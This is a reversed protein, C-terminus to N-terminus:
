GNVDGSCLTRLEGDQEVYIHPICIGERAMEALIDDKRWWTAILLVDVPTEKLIDRYQIEQGTGPVYSGIKDRDSDVVLPFRQGDLGYLNIFAASKGTGGWIAIHKGSCAIETLKSRTHQVTAPIQTFFAHTAKARKKTNGPSQLKVLAYVVERNYGHSLTQVEGIRQMLTLFSLTTFHSVHEYYFDALRSQAVSPEICPVEAFLHCPKDLHATCWAISELLPTIELFHELVHRVIIVDPQITPIDQMPDFLRAEFNIGRGSEASTNPDFGLFIRDPMMESLGRLFHGEGCGIEVVVAGPQLISHVLERTQKLHGSWIYGANYMRNPNKRYPVDTYVFSKNYIHTCHPCQVFELPFRQLNQAETSNMPWALTALTQPEIFFFPIGIHYGCVPCRSSVYTSLEPM